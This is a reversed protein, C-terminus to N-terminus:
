PGFARPAGRLMAESLFIAVEEGAPLHRIVIDSAEEFSYRGAEGIHQTYGERDPAWWARHKWSWIVFLDTM